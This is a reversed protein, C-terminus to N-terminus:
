FSFSATPSFASKVGSKSVARVSVYYVIGESLYSSLNALDFTTTVSSSSPEYAAVSAVPLDNETFVGTQDIYIEFSELDTSPNLPTRDAYTNPPNWQLTKTPFSNGTTGGDNGGGGCGSIFASFVLLPLICFFIKSFSKRRWAM